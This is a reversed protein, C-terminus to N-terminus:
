ALGKAVQCCVTPLVEYGAVEVLSGLMDMCFLSASSQQHHTAAVGAPQTTDLRMRTTCAGWCCTVSQPPLPLGPEM